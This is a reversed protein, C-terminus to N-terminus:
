LGVKKKWPLVVTTKLQQHSYHKPTLVWIKRNKKFRKKQDKSCEWIEFYSKLILSGGFIRLFSCVYSYFPMPISISYMFFGVSIFSCKYRSDVKILFILQLSKVIHLYPVFCHLYCEEKLSPVTPEKWKNITSEHITYHSYTVDTLIHYLSIIVM